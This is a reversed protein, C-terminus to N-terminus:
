IMFGATVPQQLHAGVNFITDRNVLQGVLNVAPETVESSDGLDAYNVETLVDAAKVTLSSESWTLTGMFLAIGTLVSIIRSKRM